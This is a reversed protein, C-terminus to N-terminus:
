YGAVHHDTETTLRSEVQFLVEDPDTYILSIACTSLFRYVWRSSDLHSLLCGRLWEGHVQRWEPRTLLVRAVTLAATEPSSSWSGHRDPNVGPQGGATTPQPMATQIALFIERGVVTDPLIEPLSSIHGAAEIMREHLERNSPAAARANLQPWLALLQPSADDRDDARNTKELADGVEHLLRAESSLETTHTSPQDDYPQEDPLLVPPLLHTADVGM